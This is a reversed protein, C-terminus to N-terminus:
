SKKGFPGHARLAWIIVSVDILEQLSAGITPSTNTTAFYVMLAVSLGIGILIAQKTIRVTDKAIIVADYVRQISDEMIVVDASQSAATAGRAGLAIGVDAAMLVPADNVGDGVMVSPYDSKSLERIKVLKDAPLCSSYVKSADINVKKAVALASKAVDGSLMIITKVGLKRFSAIVKKSEPRLEDEFTINGILQGGYSVWIATEQNTIKPASQSVFEPRGVLLAKGKLTGSLGKGAVEKINKALELKLSKDTAMTLIAKAVAHESNQEINAALQLLYDKSQGAEPNISKVALKGYTLTGTKDFALSNIAALKELSATSKIIIGNKAAKSMGSIIGIPAGLLLPCPTAVVLVGVFRTFDGWAFWASFALVYAFLTFPVSYRDAMRVFPSQSDAAHEVLKIIQEYQSDKALRTAEITIPSSLVVAGSLIASNTKSVRPLSEGTLSSEDLEASKSLLKGDVPVVEGPNIIIKDGIVIKTIAVDSTTGNKNLLHATKPANDILATLEKKARREAYDELAEGGSIMVVIILAAWYEKAIVASIIATVALIDVGYEGHRVKEYMEKIIPLTVLICFVSILVNAPVRSDNLYFLGSVVAILVSLSFQKYQLIFSKFKSM